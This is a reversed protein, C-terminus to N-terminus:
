DTWAPSSNMPFFVKRNKSMMLLWISPMGPAIFNRVDLFKLKHTCICMFENQRKFLFRFPNHAQEGKGEQKHEEEEEELKDESNEEESKKEQLTSQMFRQFFYPKIVNM